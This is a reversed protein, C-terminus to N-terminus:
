DLLGHEHADKFWWWAASHSLDQRTLDGHDRTRFFMPAFRAAVDNDRLGNFLAVHAKDAEGLMTLGEAIKAVQQRYTSDLRDCVLKSWLEREHEIIRQQEEMARRLVNGEDTLTELDRHIKAHREDQVLLFDEGALLARARSTLDDDVTQRGLGALLEVRRRELLCLRPKLGQELKDVAARYAPHAADAAECAKVVAAEVADPKQAKVTKVEGWGELVKM